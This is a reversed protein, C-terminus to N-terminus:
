IVYKIKKNRKRLEEIFQDRDYVSIFVHSMRRSEIGIRDFAAAFSASYDQALRVTVIEQIPLNKRLLGFRIIVEKKDITVENKFLVPVFYLDVVVLVVLSLIMPGSIGSYILSALAIGNLVATVVYWAKSIKGKFTM